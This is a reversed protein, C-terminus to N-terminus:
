KEIYTKILYQVRDVNMDSGRCSRVGHKMLLDSLMLSPLGLGSEIFLNYLESVASIFENSYSTAWSGPGHDVGIYEGQTRKCIDILGSIKENNEEYFRREKEKIKNQYKILDQISIPM